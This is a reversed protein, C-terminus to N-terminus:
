NKENQETGKSNINHAKKFVFIKSFIYNVIIVMVQTVIKSLIDNIKFVEVMLAFTGVDCLIGSLIRAFFFSSIEKFFEKKTNTKSEFVFLKNTIYAFLVACFWSLASSAVKEIGLVRAFMFYSIFNVVTCLVGFILYNIVEKYNFYLGIITKMNINKFNVESLKIKKIEGKKM